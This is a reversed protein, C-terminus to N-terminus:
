KSRGLAKIIDYFSVELIITVRKIGSEKNETISDKLAMFMITASTTNDKAHM